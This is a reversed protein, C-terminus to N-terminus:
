QLMKKGVISRKQLWKQLLQYNFLQPWEGVAPGQSVTTLTGVDLGNFNPQKGLM